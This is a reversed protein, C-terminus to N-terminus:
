VKSSDDDDQHPPLPLYVSFTSGKQYESEVEITGGHLDILEKSIALGLGTGDKIAEPSYQHIQTFKNFLKSLDEPKIGIGTDSVKLCLYPKGHQMIRNASCKVSGKDTFKIANSLLNLMVQKLRLKDANLPGDWQIDAEFSLGKKDSLPETADHCEKVFDSFQFTQINLEFKGSEIKSLDLIQNILELLHNANRRVTELADGIQDIKNQTLYKHARTSFGIISNLPTRLEHSMSALFQSKAKNARIAEAKAIELELNREDLEITRQKVREELAQENKELVKIMAFIDDYLQKIEEAVHNASEPKNAKKGERINHTILSLARIPNAIRHSVFYSTIMLMIIVALALLGLFNRVQNVSESIITKPVYLGLIYGSPDIRQFLLYSPGTENNAPLDIIGNSANLIRSTEQRIIPNVEDQITPLEAVKEGIENLVYNGREDKKLHVTKHPNWHYWYLGKPSMLFLKGKGALKDEFHQKIRNMRAEINDWPLAGGLMGVAKEQNVITSAVVVQKVETTYSIMPESVYTINQSLDNNGLTYQWYDRKHISRPQAAPDQNNFTQLMEVDPNGGSTNHFHGSPRGVIFKEYHPTLQQLQELLFPKALSFQMDKLPTIESFASVEAMRQAFYSSLLAAEKELTLGIIELTNDRKANSFNYVSLFVMLLLPIAAATIIQLTVRRRLKM